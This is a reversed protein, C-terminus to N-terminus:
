GAEARWERRCKQNPPNKFSCLECHFSLWWPIILTMSSSTIWHNKGKHLRFRCIRSRPSFFLNWIYRCLGPQWTFHLCSMHSPPFYNQGLYTEWHITYLLLWERCTVPSASFSYEFLKEVKCSQPWWVKHFECQILLLINAKSSQNELRHQCLSLPKKFGPIICRDLFYWLGQDLFHSCTYFHIAAWCRHM